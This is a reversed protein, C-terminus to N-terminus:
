GNPTALIDEVTESIAQMFQADTPLIRPNPQMPGVQKALYFYVPDNPSRKAGTQERLTGGARYLNVGTARLTGVTKGHAEARAPITLFKIARGTIESTNRPKIVGGGTYHRRVGVLSTKGEMVQATITGGSSTSVTADSARLWYKTSNKGGWKNQKTKGYSEFNNKIVEEVKLRSASAVKEASIGAYRLMEKQVADAGAISISVTV